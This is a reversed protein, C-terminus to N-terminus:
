IELIKLDEESVAKMDKKNMMDYICPIVFLTMLTAYLLGGICVIAIPRMLSTGPSRTVAMDILGLITTLSTMLIPRMRTVGAEVIAEVREKGDLRLQNIYDVLVIGNNVIIGTLMVFGVLSVVSIELNFVLLGIFGGTFALPITFMVIFPSKLSQFQAVMVLYVLVVGLLLMLLLQEIANMIQENEGAMQCTVGEGLDLSAIRNEVERSVLSVNYGDEIQATVQIYRRQNLRRITSLSNTREIAAVDGLRLSIDEGMMNQGTVEFDTLDSLSIKAGSRQELIVSTTTGELEMTTATAEDTLASSLSMFIQAVTFGKEMAKNRDIYIHISEVSEDLGDVVDKTGSVSRVTEGVLAAANQLANMDEAYIEATVGNGTLLGMYSNMVSDATVKCPLDKCLAEIKKGVANGSGGEDKLNVYCTVDFEGGSTSMLLGSGSSSMSAGMTGIEDLTLIRSIVEDALASAEEMTAEKPMEINVSINPLDIQPIFTFGRELSFFLTSALLVISAILVVAKRKLTWRLLKEYLKLVPGLLFDRHEKHTVLMKSAMAPVLTISVILSAMLSFTLTLALDTFLQKTLGEVFVIPLFVCVTTLTSATVAGVVQAAGSVSAQIINAGKSRLRFINEIVVVSNDVLMGVAVALGSLSIMNITVGSFYMLVIAFILSVPISVLTILTPRIDKLFLFLILVAFVAGLGLSRLITNVILYIYSGQDMLTVFHLGPYEAELARLRTEINGTVEATAFTSQKEFTLSIGDVSGLKSYSEASNDTVMIAAVDKLYIPLVGDIHLDFLMLNQFEEVTTMEDGVSVMYSVGDQKVYGAPMSFNQATLIASITDMTLIHYLNAQALTSERTEEITTLGQEVQTLAGSVAIQNASLDAAAQAIQLLGSTKQASLLLAADQLQMMGADIQSLGDQLAKNGEDIQLINADMEALSADLNEESIGQAELAERAQQIRTQIDQYAAQSEQIRGELTAADLGYASLQTQLEAYSAEAQQYAASNRIEAIAAEIEEPTLDAREQLEQIQATFGDRVAQITQMTERLQIMNEIDASIAAAQTQLTELGTKLATLANKTTELTTRATQLQAIQDQLQAKTEILETQKESIQAEGAATQNALASSGANLEERAADMQEQADTLEQKTGALEGAAESFQEEIVKAIAENWLDIKQQSLVVHVEQTIGGSASVRAVGSIGELKNMITDNLFETLELTSMDDVSVAAVEIPIVSPNIKLVYPTGVMEDWSSELVAINQQIDVGITDMNVDEEFELMVLGYNEQSNSTVEKIHELTSMSQEMPRVVELEVKEPSAGPYTTMIIIYPFDMNPFLDPTMRLYAVVGLVLVAIVAVFITLPKKVSFKPM